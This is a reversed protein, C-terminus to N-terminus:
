SSSAIPRASLPLEAPETGRPGPVRRIVEAAARALPLEVGANAALGAATDLDKVALARRADDHHPDFLMARSPWTALAHSAGSAKLVLDRIVDPDLGHATALRLAEAVAASNVLSMTNNVLKVLQGSGVGGVPVVDRCYTDFALRVSAPVDGDAGVFAVCRPPEGDRHISVPADVVQVGAPATAAFEVLARPGVTSHVVLTTMRDCNSEVAAFVEDVVARVQAETAVAVLLVASQRALDAISRAIAVGAATLQSAVLPDRDFGIVRCGASFLGRAALSGLEGLGIIGLVPGPAERDVKVLAEV